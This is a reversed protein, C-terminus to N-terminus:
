PQVKWALINWKGEDANWKGAFILYKGATTSTPFNGTYDEFVANLTITRSTGNDLIRFWLSQNDNPTGTPANITINTALALVKAMETTDANVTLGGVSAISTINASPNGIKVTGNQSWVDGVVTGTASTPLNPMNVTSNMLVSGQLSVNETGIKTPDDSTPHYIFGSVNHIKVDTNDIKIKRKSIIPDNSGDGHGIGLWIESDGSTGAAYMKLLKNYEGKIVVSNQIGNPSSSIGNTINFSQSSSDSHLAFYSRQGSAGRIEVSRGVQIRTFGQSGSFTLDNTGAEISTNQNLNVNGNDLFDWLKNPTTDNDYISLASGTSTGNGKILTSGQFSYDETSVKSGSSGFLFSGDEEMRLALNFVSVSPQTYVEWNKQFSDIHDKNRSSKMFTKGQFLSDLGVSSSGSNGWSGLQLFPDNTGTGARFQHVMVDSSGGEHGIRSDGFGDFTLDNGDLDVTRNGTLTGNATYINDASPIDSLLAITGTTDPLTWNRFATLTDSQLRGNSGNAFQFISSSTITLNEGDTTNGTRLVTSLGNALTDLIDKLLVNHDSPQIAEDPQLDDLLLDIASNVNARNGLDAM